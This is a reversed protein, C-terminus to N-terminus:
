IMSKECVVSSSATGLAKIRTDDKSTGLYAIQAANDGCYIYTLSSSTLLFSSYINISSPISSSEHTDFDNTTKPYSGEITRYAEAKRAVIDAQSRLDSAASDNPNSSDDTSNDFLYSSPDSSRSSTPNAAAVLIIFLVLLCVLVTIVTFVLGIVAGITGLTTPANVKKSQNRSVFGLIAGILSFGIFSLVISIIGLTQGPNEAQYAPQQGYPTYPQGDIPPHPPQNSVPPTQAQENPTPPLPPQPAKPHSNTSM